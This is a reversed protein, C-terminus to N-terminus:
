EPSAPPKAPAEVGLIERARELEGTPVQVRVGISGGLYPMAGATMEDMVFAEVGEVRLHDQALDAEARTSYTAVTTLEDREAM